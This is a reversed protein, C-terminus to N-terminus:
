STGGKEIKDRARLNFEKAHWRRGYDERGFM